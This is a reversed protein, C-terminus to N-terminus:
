HLLAYVFINVDVELSNSIENGGCCCCGETHTTDNLGHPSYIVVMKGDMELGELRADEAPHHLELKKIQHVTRFLPHDMPIKKLPNEGFIAKMEGRFSRDWEKNSCGASALLFGGSTLYKKLNEREKTTFHFESEGTMMIFPYNFLEDDALKVSRFRRETPITTKKQVATLFEDSFCKSTHSGAYILNACQIVNDKAIAVTTCAVALILCAFLPPKYTTLKMMGGQCNGPEAPGNYAPVADRRASVCHRGVAVNATLYRPHMKM